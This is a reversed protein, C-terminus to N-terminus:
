WDTLGKGQFGFYMQVPPLLPLLAEIMQIQFRLRKEGGKSLIAAREYSM